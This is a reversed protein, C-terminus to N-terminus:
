GKVAGFSLGSGLNRHTMISFIITPLLIVIGATAMMNWEIGMEGMYTMMSLPLTKAKTSTMMMAYLYENWTFVMILVATAAIGSRCMPIVINFLARVKSSGDIWASEEIEIPVNSIFGRMMWVVYPINMACNLLILGAQTDYLGVKRFILYIPIVTSIPPIFRSALLFLGMGEKGPIRARTLAYSAFVGIVMSIVVSFFTVVISNRLFLLLDSQQFFHIYNTLDPWMWLAPPQQFAEKYTKFSTVLTWYLPFIFFLAALSAVTYYFIKESLRQKM